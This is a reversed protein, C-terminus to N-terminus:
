KSVLWARSWIRYVNHEGDEVMFGFSLQERPNDGNGGFQGMLGTESDQTFSTGWRKKEYVIFQWLAEVMSHEQKPFENYQDDRLTKFKFRLGFRTIVRMQALYGDYQPRYSEAVFVAYDKPQEIRDQPQVELIQMLTNFAPRTIDNDFYVISGGCPDESLARTFPNNCREEDPRIFQTLDGPQLSGSKDDSEMYIIGTSALDFRSRRM